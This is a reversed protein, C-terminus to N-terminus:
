TYDYIPNTKSSQSIISESTMHNSDNGIIVTKLAVHVQDNVYEIINQIQTNNLRSIDNM